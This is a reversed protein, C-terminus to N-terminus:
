LFRERAGTALILKDYHLAVVGADDATERLTHLMGPAPADFVRSGFLLTAGSRALQHLASDKRANEEQNARQNPAEIGGRWIQGGAAPNDDLLFVSRGHRAAATAAAIGAPGAGVVIVDAHKM